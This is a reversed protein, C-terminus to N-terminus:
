SSTKAWKAIAFEVLKGMTCGHVDNFDLTLPRPSPTM